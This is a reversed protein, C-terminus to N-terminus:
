RPEPRLRLARRPGSEGRPRAGAAHRQTARGPDSAPVSVGPRPGLSPPQCSRSGGLPICSLLDPPQRPTPPPTAAPPSAALSKGGVVQGADSSGRLPGGGEDSRRRHGRGARQAFCLGLPAVRPPPLQGRHQLPAGNDLVAGRLTEGGVCVRLTRECLAGPGSPVSCGVRTSCLPQMESILGM